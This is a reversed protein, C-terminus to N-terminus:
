DTPFRIAELELEVKTRGRFHNLRPRFAVEFPRPGGPGPGARQILQDCLEPRSWAVTRFVREGQRMLFSVHNGDKGMRKPEGALFVDRAAFIPEPNGAGFPSLQELEQMLERSVEDLEVEGVTVVEYGALAAQLEALEPEHPLGIQDAVGQAFAERLAPLKDIDITFGLAAAHGGMRQFLARHPELSALLDVTELSRGSGKAKGEEISAILVPRRFIEVLRSAVIGVVGHPWDEGYVVIGASKVQDDQEAGYVERVQAEAEAAVRNQLERRRKNEAELESALARAPGEDEATLLEFARRARGMRGAANIRPAIRFAVGVADVDGEVKASDMLARLGATPNISLARLGYRVIIRNEGVLPVVDAVTGLAVLSLCRLLLERLPQTKGCVEILAWAVKFAVGAGCLNPNAYPVGVRPHVLACARPLEPGMTHHDVVILDIGADALFAAEEMAAIGNDISVVVSVGEELARQMRPLNLGYGETRDPIHADVVADTGAKRILARIVTSLVAAGTIGDVDYDGFLLIRQGEDIARKLRAAAVDIDNLGAPPLLDRLNPELFAQASETEQMGRQALLHATLPSVQLRM